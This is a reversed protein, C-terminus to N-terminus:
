AETTLLELAKRKQGDGYGFWASSMRNDVSRAPHHHDYYETVANLLGWRTGAVGKQTAGRGAGEFLALMKQYPRSTRVAEAVAEHEVEERMQPTSKDLLQVLFNDAGFHNAPERSLLKAVHMFKQFSDVAVGLERKVKDANFESRHSVQVEAMGREGLAISLTNACVVREAVNKVITKISGDCSTAIMLRGKLVDNGVVVGEAKVDALAWFKSGGHLTGATQLTFGAVDVLDRFFELVEYPQVVKFRDSVMGLPAKTDSRFLVHYDPWLKLEAHANDPGTQYRALSRKIRWEMGAATLWQEMPAGPTLEQGLGHWPKEGIYAMEAFGNQRQTIAHAM